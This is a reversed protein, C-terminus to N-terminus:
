GGILTQKNKKESLKVKKKFDPRKNERGAARPTCCGTPLM